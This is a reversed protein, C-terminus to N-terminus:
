FAWAVCDLLLFFFSFMDEIQDQGSYVGIFIIQYHCFFTSVEVWGMTKAHVIKLRVM